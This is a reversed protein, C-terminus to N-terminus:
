SELKGSVFRAALFTVATLVPIVLVTWPTFFRSPDDPEAPETTEDATADQGTPQDPVRDEDSM